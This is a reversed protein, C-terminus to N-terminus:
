KWREKFEKMRRTRIKGIIVAMFVIFAFITNIVFIFYASPILVQKFRMIWSFISGFDWYPFFGSNQIDILINSVSEPNILTLSIYHFLLLILFSKTMISIIIGSVLSNIAKKTINGVYSHSLISFIFFAYCITFSISLTFSFLKDFLSYDFSGFIPVLRESAAMMLPSTATTFFGILIGAKVGVEFFSLSTATPLSGGPIESSMEAVSFQEIESMAHILSKAKIPGSSEDTIIITGSDKSSGSDKPM